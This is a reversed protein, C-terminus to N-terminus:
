VNVQQIKKYKKVIDQKSKLYEIAAQDGENEKKAKYTSMVDRFQKILEDRGRAAREIEADGAPAEADESDMPEAKPASTPKEKPAKEAKAKPEAKPKPGKPSPIKGLIQNAADKDTTNAALGPSKFPLKEGPKEKEWRSEIDFTLTNFDEGTEEKYNKLFETSYSIKRDKKNPYENPELERTLRGGSAIAPNKKFQNLTDQAVKAVIENREDGLAKLGDITQKISAMENITEEDLQYKEALKKRKEEEAISIPKGTTKATKIANQVTSLDKEEKKAIEPAETSDTKKDVVTIETLASAIEERIIELLRTQKM